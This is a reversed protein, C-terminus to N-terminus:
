SLAHMIESLHHRFELGPIRNLSYCMFPCPFTWERGLLDDLLRVILWKFTCVARWGKSVQECHRLPFAVILFM